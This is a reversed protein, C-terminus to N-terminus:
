KEESKADVSAPVSAAQMSVGTREQSGAISLCITINVLHQM